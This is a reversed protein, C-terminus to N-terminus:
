NKQKEAPVTDGNRLSRKFDKWTKKRKYDILCYIVSLLTGALVIGAFIMGEYFYAHTDLYDNAASFREETDAIDYSNASDLSLVLYNGLGSSMFQVYNKTRTTRCKRVDNYQDLYYVSITRDADEPDLRVQIIVPKDITIEDRNKYLALKFAKEPTFGYGASVKELREKAEEDAESARLYYTDPLFKEKEANLDDAALALGSVSLSLCNDEIHLRFKEDELLMKELLRIEEFSYIHDVKGLDKKIALLDSASHSGNEQYSTINKAIKNELGERLSSLNNSVVVSYPISFGQYNISIDKRGPINRDYSTIMDTDIEVLEEEGDEYIVRLKAGSLDLYKGTEITNDFGEELLVENIKRYQAKYVTDEKAPSIEKDFSTFVYGDKQPDNVAPMSGKKVMLTMEELKHFHGGDPDFSIKVYENERIKDENLMYDFVDKEVYGVCTEFDYIYDDRGSRDIQVKYVEGLDELIVFAFQAKGRMTYLIRNLDEDEYVPLRVIKEIIGICFANQDKSSLTSDLRHYNMAAKEGWYPDPSYQVNMGSVKNGFFSGNYTSKRSNSYSDSIYYKAHSYVSAEVSNYRSAYREEDSDYAAHGFLNNRTYARLSKGYASENISLSLMMLANSGYLDQYQFFSKLEGAYQSRNVSDNANDWSQDSYSNLRKDFQLVDTFYEEIESYEYNTMTRHSLYQYYNYYPEEANVSNERVSDRYDDSMLFFDEYFYHGDYSYYSRGEQLYDPAKDLIISGSYYDSSLQTKIDHHLSGGSVSYVSTRVGLEEFPHLIVSDRRIRGEDGSIAFYVTSDDSSSGLYLADIGYCGNINGKDGRIDSTYDLSLSCGENVRFEVIGYEMRVVEGNHRLVANHFDELSSNFFRNAASYSDFREPTANGSADYVLYSDEEEAHLFVTSGFLICLTLSVIFFRQLFKM